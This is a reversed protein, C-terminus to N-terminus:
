AAGTSKHKSAPFFLILSIPHLNILLRILILFRTFYQGQIYSRFLDVSVLHHVLPSLSAYRTRQRGDDGDDDDVDYYCTLCTRTARLRQQLTNERMKKEEKEKGRVLFGSVQEHQLLLLLMLAM